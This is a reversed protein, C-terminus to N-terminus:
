HTLNLQALYREIVMHSSQELQAAYKQNDERLAQIDIKAQDLEVIHGILWKEFDQGVVEAHFQLALINQGLQFAQHPYHESSALLQANEPLDFADGHWHLVKINELPALINDTVASLKLQSWGIEKIHGPYIDAGLAKAILQAGLCIGLTPLNDALRQKLLDIELGLFPFRDREYASIPGGLIVVLGPHQLAPQLDDVGADFYRVRFGHQYFIDEFSGLDEFALHQIAYVTKMSTLNLQTM